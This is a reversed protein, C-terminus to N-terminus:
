ESQRELKGLNDLVVQKKIGMFLSEDAPETLHRIVSKPAKNLKAVLSKSSVFEIHLDATRLIM